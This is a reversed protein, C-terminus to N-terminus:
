LDKPRRWAEGVVCTRRPPERLIVHDPPTRFHVAFREIQFSVKRKTAVTEAILLIQLVLLDGEGSRVGQNVVLYRLLDTRCEPQQM